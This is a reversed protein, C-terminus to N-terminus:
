VNIGDLNKEIRIWRPHKQAAPLPSELQLPILFINLEWQIVIGIRREASRVRGRGLEDHPQSRNGIKQAGKAKRKKKKM